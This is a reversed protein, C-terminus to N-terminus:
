SKVMGRLRVHRTAVRAAWFTVKEGGHMTLKVRAKKDVPCFVWWILTALDWWRHPIVIWVSDDTSILALDRTGEVEIEVAKLGAM